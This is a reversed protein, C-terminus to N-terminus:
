EASGLVREPAQDKSFVRACLAEAVDELGADTLMEVTSRIFGQRDM